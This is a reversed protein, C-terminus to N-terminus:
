WEGVLGFISFGCGGIHLAHSNYIIPIIYKLRTYCITMGFSCLSQPFRRTKPYTPSQSNTKVAGGRCLRCAAEARPKIAATGRSTGLRAIVFVGLTYLEM